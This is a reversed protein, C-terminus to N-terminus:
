KKQLLQDLKLEIRELTERMDHESQKMRSLEIEIQTMRRQGEDLMTLIRKILFGCGSIAVVM